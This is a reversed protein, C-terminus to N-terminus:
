IRSQKKIEWPALVKIRLRTLHTSLPGLSRLALAPNRTQM